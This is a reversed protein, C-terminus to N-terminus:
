SHNLRSDWALLIDPLDFFFEILGRLLNISEFIKANYADNFFFTETM